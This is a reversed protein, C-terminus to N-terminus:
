KRKLSSIMNAIQMLDNKSINKQNCIDALMQAQKDSPQNQFLSLMQNQQPTLMGTLMKMPNSANMIQSLINQLNM